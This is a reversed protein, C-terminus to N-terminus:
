RQVRDLHLVHHVARVMQRQFEVTVSGGELWNPVEQREEYPNGVREYKTEVICLATADHSFGLDLGAYYDYEPKTRPQTLIFGREAADRELQEYEYVNM